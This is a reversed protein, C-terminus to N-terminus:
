PLAHAFELVVYVLFILAITIGTGFGLFLLRLEERERPMEVPALPASQGEGTNAASAAPVAGPQEEAPM